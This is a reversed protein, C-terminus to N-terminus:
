KKEERTFIHQWVEFWRLLSPPLPKGPAEFSCSLIERLRIRLVKIALMTKWDSVSFRLKSGDLTIVGAYMQLSLMLYLIFAAPQAPSM